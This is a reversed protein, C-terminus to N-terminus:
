IIGLLDLFNTLVCVRKRKNTLKTLFSEFFITQGNENNEITYILIDVVRTDFTSSLSEDGGIPKAINIPLLSKKWKYDTNDSYFVNGFVFVTSASFRYLRSM